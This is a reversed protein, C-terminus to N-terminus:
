ANELKKAASATLVALIVAAVFAIACGGMLVADFTQDEIIFYYVALVPLLISWLVKKKFDAATSPVNAIRAGQFGYVLIEVGSALLMLLNSVQAKNTAFGYIAAVIGLIGALMAFFSAYKVAKMEQSM